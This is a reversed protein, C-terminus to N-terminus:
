WTSQQTQLEEPSWTPAWSSWMEMGRGQDTNWQSNDKFGFPITTQAHKSSSEWFTPVSTDLAGSWKEDPPVTSRCRSAYALVREEGQINQSLVAGLGYGSADVDM